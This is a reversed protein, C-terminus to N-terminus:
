VLHCGGLNPLSIVMDPLSIASNPLSIVMDPLAIASNPLSIVMNALSTATLPRGATSPLATTDDAHLTPHHTGGTSPMLLCPTNPCRQHGCASPWLGAPLVTRGDNRHAAADHTGIPRDRAAPRQRSLTESGTCAFPSVRYTREWVMYEVPSSAAMPSELSLCTLGLGLGLGM